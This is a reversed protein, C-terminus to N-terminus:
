AHRGRDKYEGVKVDISFPYWRERASNEEDDARDGVVKM